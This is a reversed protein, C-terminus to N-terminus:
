KRNTKEKKFRIISVDEEAVWGQPNKERKSGKGEM